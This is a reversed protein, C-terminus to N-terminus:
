EYSLLGSNVAFFMMCFPLLYLLYLRFLYSGLHRNDSIAGGLLIFLLNPLMVAMQALGVRDAPEHLVGVVLWPFIVIQLGMAVASCGLGSLYNQFSSLKKNGPM